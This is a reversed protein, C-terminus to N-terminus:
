DGLLLFTGPATGRLWGVTDRVSLRSLLLREV